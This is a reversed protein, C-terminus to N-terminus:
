ITDDEEDEDGGLGGLVENEDIEEEYDDIVDNEDYDTDGVDDDTFNANDDANVIDKDINVSTPKAIPESSQTKPATTPPSEAKEYCEDDEDEDDEDDTSNGEDEEDEGYDDRLFDSDNTNNNKRKSKFFYFYAGIAGAFLVLIIIGFVGGGGKKVPEAPTNESPKASPQGEQNESNEKTEGSDTNGVTNGKDVVNNLDSHPDLNNPVEYKQTLGLLDWETVSNLFYVNDKGNQRDIVVYFENGTESRVIFFEKSSTDANDVVTAWGNTSFGGNESTIKNGESVPKSEAETEKEKESGSGGTVSLSGKIPEPQPTTEIIEPLYFPNKINVTESINGMGDTATIEIHENFTDETNLEHEIRFDAKTQINEVLVSMSTFDHSFSIETIKLTKERNDYVVINSPVNKTDAFVPMAMNMITAIVAFSLLIAKAAIKSKAQTTLWLTM